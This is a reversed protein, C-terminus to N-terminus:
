RERAKSALHADLHDRHPFSKFKSGGARGRRQSHPPGRGGQAGTCSGWTCVDFMLREVLRSAVSTQFTTVMILTTKHYLIYTASLVQFM